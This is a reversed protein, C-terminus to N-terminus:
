SHFLILGVGVAFFLIWSAVNIVAHNRVFWQSKKLLIYNLVVASLVAGIVSSFLIIINGEFGIIKVLFYVALMGCLFLFGNWFLSTSPFQKSCVQEFRNMM